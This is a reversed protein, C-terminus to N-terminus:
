RSRSTRATSARACRARGGREDDARCALHFGGIGKVAVIAGDVCRGRPRRSPTARARRSRRRRGRRGAARAARVGPLREAPRPLAPRGPRRVRGPLGPVDRLGGDDHEAPRLPRRPRDHLAARLEHLQHVPLPPAPRRPRVARGPLRRLDRQRAHGRRAARRRRPSDRIAFGREGLEELPRARDRARRTALPPAEPPLRALFREVTEAPAEVEVVVGRADNLVHGAM